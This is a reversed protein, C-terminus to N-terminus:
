FGLAIAGRILCWVSFVMPIHDHEIDTAATSSCLPCMRTNRSQACSTTTSTSLSTQSSTTGLVQTVMCCLRPVCASGGMVVASASTPTTRIAAQTKRSPLCSGCSTGQSIDSRMKLRTWLAHRYPRSIRSGSPPTLQRSHAIVSVYRQLIKEEISGTGIFRYVFCSKKQGDRWVRALAQQDSAPNWDPDFLVLRNAGVLNIGCGGAKSSLLFIFEKGEPDNFQDVLKQRKGIGMSGDLRFHGWRNARCMNAFVDLTQTYNSILVIKDTTNARISQLFRELVLMKGSYEPHVSRRDRPNFGEPFCSESGELDGPLQLLSPHNCLKKLINIAKLPQSGQGRLLRKIEPSTIFHRYLALQFPAMRCFVVHEYKVPLYKSLLDNTRRIIFRSVLASLESLKKDGEEKEKDSAGADRGKLIALEFNKRFELRSGLLDPNAFNLLSFYESLDNQIPTGSLIVRRKVNLKDLTQVTLSESNKLRHGEDCLLLGVETEGIHDTLGRLTEYSVIMVPATVQRGKAECWRRVGAVLQDQRLKGDLAFTGPAAEGLWKVLENAWNRVLSAPCAIIVKDITPKHPIPSQRLLTWLLAICQLTKGLGMEDAMICGYANEVLLGTCCRYLFRVGEVQHPRLVKGLRPDIVVPVKVVEKKTNRAIGLIEALSKHPGRQTTAPPPPANEKDEGAAQARADEQLRRKVEISERDDVTPDYLVISHEGMPDHLPRPPIEIPRRTGLAAHSPRNEIVEGKKNKMVPMHFGRNLAGPKPKYTPWKRMDANTSAGTEDVGKYGSCDANKPVNKKKTVGKAKGDDYDVAADPDEDDGEGAMDRYDVRKRKRQGVLAERALTPPRFPKVEFTGEYGGGNALGHAVPLKADDEGKLVATIFSRRM